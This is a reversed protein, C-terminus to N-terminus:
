KRAGGDKKHVIRPKYVFYDFDPSQVPGHCSMCFRSSIYIEPEPKIKKEHHDAAVVHCAQCTVRGLGPTKAMSTFGGERGLGMTHCLLCEPDEHRRARKISAYARAHRTTQWHAYELAHCEKCAEATEFRAPIATLGWDPPPADKSEKVYQWYLDMAWPAEPVRASLEIMEGALRPKGGERRDVSLAGLVRGSEGTSVVLTQGVKEPVRLLERAAGCVVVDIGPVKAALDRSEPLGQHSLAVILDCGELAKVERRAAEVPPEVTLGQRWERPPWGVAEDAIVAFIGVRAGGIERVVHAPVVLDGGERRVNACILPLGYDRRLDELAQPGLLFEQDGLGIADWAGRALGKALYKVKVPFKYDPFFNGADVVLVGPRTRRFSEILGQRKAFGGSPNSPCGCAAIVGQNDASYLLVPRSDKAAPECGRGNAGLAALALGLLAAAIPARSLWTPSRRHVDREPM